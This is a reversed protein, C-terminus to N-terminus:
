KRGSPDSICLRQVSQLSSVAKPMTSRRTMVLFRRGWLTRTVIDVACIKESGYMDPIIYEYIKRKGTSRIKLACFVATYGTNLNTKHDLETGSKPNLLQWEKVESFVM